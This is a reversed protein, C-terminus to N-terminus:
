RIEEFNETRRKTVEMIGSEAASTTFHIAHPLFYAVTKNHHIQLENRAAYTRVSDEHLCPNKSRSDRAVKLTMIPALAKVLMAEPLLAEARVTRAITRARSYQYTGDCKLMVDIKQRWRRSDQYTM